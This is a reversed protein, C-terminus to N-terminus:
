SLKINEIVKARQGFDSPITLKEGSEVTRIASLITTIFIAFHYFLSSV